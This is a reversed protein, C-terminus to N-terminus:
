AHHVEEEKEELRQHPDREELPHAEGVREEVHEVVYDVSPAAVMISIIPSRPSPRSTAIWGILRATMMTPTTIPRKMPEAGPRPETLPTAIRRGRVKRTGGVDAIM